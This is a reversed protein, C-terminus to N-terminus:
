NPAPKEEAIRREAQSTVGNTDITITHRQVMPGAPVWGGKWTEDNGQGAGTRQWILTFTADETVRFPFVAAEGAAVSERVFTQGGVSLRIREIAQKSRNRVM